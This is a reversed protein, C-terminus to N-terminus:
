QDGLAEPHHPDVVAVRTVRVPEAAGLVDVTAVLEGVHTVVDHPHEVVEAYRGGVEDPVRHARHDRLHGRDVM